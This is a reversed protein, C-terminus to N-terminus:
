DSENDTREYVRYYRPYSDPSQISSDTWEFTEGTGVIKDCHLTWNVLDSSSEVFYEHGTETAFNLVITYPQELSYDSFAVLKLENTTITLARTRGFRDIYQFTNESLYSGAISPDAGPKTYLDQVEEWSQGSNDTKHLWSGISYGFCENVATADVAAFPVFEYVTQWEQEPANDVTWESISSPGGVNRDSLLRLTAPSKAILRQPTEGPSFEHISQWAAGGSATYFVGEDNAIWGHDTDFFDIHTLPQETPLVLEEWNSGGDQTWILEGDTRIIWGHSASIFDAAPAEGDIGTSAFTWSDAESAKVWLAGETGLAIVTGNELLQLNYIQQTNLNPLAVKDWTKGEDTTQYFAKSVTTGSNAASGSGIAWGTSEDIFISHAIPFSGGDFPLGIAYADSVTGSTNRKQVWGNAGVLLYSSADPALAVGGEDFTESSDLREWSAGGDNTRYVHDAILMGNQNDSFAIDVRQYSFGSHDGPIANENLTWNAGGDSTTLVDSGEIVIGNNEDSFYIPGGNSLAVPANLVVTWNQGGDITKYIRDANSRFGTDQNVFFIYNSGISTASVQWTDGGDQSYFINSNATIYVEGSNLTHLDNFSSASTPLNLTEWSEGGDKTRYVTDRTALFGLSQNAFSIRSSTEFWEIQVSSWTEGADLSRYVQLGPGVVVDNTILGSGAGSIWITDGISDVSVLDTNHLGKVELTAAHSSTLFFSLAVLSTALRSWRTHAIM